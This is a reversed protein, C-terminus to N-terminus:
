AAGSGMSSNAVGLGVSRIGWGLRTFGTTVVALTGSVGAAAGLACGSAAGPVGGELVGTIAGTACGIAAPLAIAPNGGSVDEVESITLERIM